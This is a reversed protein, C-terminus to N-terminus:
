GHHRVFRLKGNNECVKEKKREKKKEAKYKEGVKPFSGHSFIQKGGYKPM